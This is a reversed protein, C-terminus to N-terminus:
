KRICCLRNRVLFDERHDADVDPTIDITASVIGVHRAVGMDVDSLLGCSLQHLLSCQYQCCQQTQQAGHHRLLCRSRGVNLPQRGRHITIEGSVAYLLEHPSGVAQLRETQLVAVLLSEILRPAILGAVSERLHAAFLTQGDGPLLPGVGLLVVALVTQVARRVGIGRQHATATHDVQRFLRKELGDVVLAAVERLLVDGELIDSQGLYLMVPMVKLLTQLISLLCQSLLIHLGDVPQMGVAIETRCETFQGTGIRILARIPLAEVLRIFLPCLYQLLM